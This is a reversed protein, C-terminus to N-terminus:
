KRGGSVARLKASYARGRRPMLVGYADGASDDQVIIPSLPDAADFTIEVGKNGKKDAAGIAKAIALLYEANLAITVPREMTAVNPTVQRHPPFAMKAPRKREIGGALERDDTATLEMDAGKPATKRAAALADASVQGDTDAPSVAVPICVLAHGDTAVVVGSTAVTADRELYVHGIHPRTPDKSVVLEPRFSPNMRM